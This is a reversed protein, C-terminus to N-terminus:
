YTWPNNVIEFIMTPNKKSNTKLVILITQSSPQYFFVYVFRVNKPCSLIQRTHSLIVLKAEQPVYQFLTTVKEPVNKRSMIPCGSGSRSAIITVHLIQLKLPAICSNLAKCHICKKQILHKSVNFLIKLFWLHGRQSLISLLLTVSMSLTLINSSM